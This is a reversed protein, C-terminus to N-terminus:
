CREERSTVQQGQWRGDVMSWGGDVMWWGIVGAGAFQGAGDIHLSMRTPGTNGGETM